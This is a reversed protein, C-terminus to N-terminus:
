PRSRVAIAILPPDHSVQTFWSLPMGNTTSSNKTTLLYIGYPIIKLLENRDEM